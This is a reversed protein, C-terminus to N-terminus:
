LSKTSIIHFSILSLCMGLVAMSATYTTTLLSPPPARTGVVRIREACIHKFLFNNSVDYLSPPTELKISPKKNKRKNQKTKKNYIRVRLESKGFYRKM